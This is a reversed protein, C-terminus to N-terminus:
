QSVHKLVKQRSYQYCKMNLEVHFSSTGVVFLEVLPITIEVFSSNLM